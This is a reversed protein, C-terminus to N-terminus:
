WATPINWCYIDGTLVSMNVVSFRLLFTVSSLTKQNRMQHSIRFKYHCFLSLIFTLRKCGHQHSQVLKYWIWIQYGKMDVVSFINL